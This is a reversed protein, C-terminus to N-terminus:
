KTKEQCFSRNWCLCVSDQFCVNMISLVCMCISAQICVIGVCMSPMSLIWTWLLIEKLSSLQEPRKRLAQKRASVLIWSIRPGEAKWWSDAPLFCGAPLHAAKPPRNSLIRHSKLERQNHRWKDEAWFIRNRQEAVCLFLFRCVAFSQDVHLCRKTHYKYAAHEFSWPLLLFFCSLLRPGGIGSKALWAETFYFFFACCSCVSWRNCLTILRLVRLSNVVTRLGAEDYSRGSTLSAETVDLITLNFVRIGIM